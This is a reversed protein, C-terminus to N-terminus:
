TGETGTPLPVTGYAEEWALAAGLVTADELGALQLGGSAANAFSGAPATTGDVLLADAGLFQDPRRVVLGVDPVSIEVRREVNPNPRKLCDLLQADIARPM